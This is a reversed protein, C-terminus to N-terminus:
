VPRELKSKLDYENNISLIINKVKFFTRITLNVGGWIELVQYFVAGLLIEWEGEVEPSKGGVGWGKVSNPFGQDAVYEPDKQCVM